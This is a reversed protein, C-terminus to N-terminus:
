IKPLDAVCDPNDKSLAVAAAWSAATWYLQPVDKKTMKAVASKPNAKLQVGFGADQFVKHLAVM